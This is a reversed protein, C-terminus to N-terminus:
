NQKKNKLLFFRAICLIVYLCILFVLSFIAAAKIIKNNKNDQDNKEGGGKNGCACHWIVSFTRLLKTFVQNVNKAM